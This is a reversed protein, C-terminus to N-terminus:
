ITLGLGHGTVAEIEASAIAMPRIIQIRVKPPPGPRNPTSPGQNKTAPKAPTDSLAKKQHRSTM